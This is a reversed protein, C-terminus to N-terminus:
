VRKLDIWDIGNNIGNHTCYKGSAITLLNILQETPQPHCYFILGQVVLHVTYNTCM